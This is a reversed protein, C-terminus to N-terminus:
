PQPEISDGTKAAPKRGPSVSAATKKAAAASKKAATVPKKASAAPKKGPAVKSGSGAKAPTKKAPSASTGKASAAKTANGAPAANKAAASQGKGVTRTTQPSPPKRGRGRGKAKSPIGRRAEILEAAEALSLTELDAGKALNANTEGDTVYFGWKGELVKIMGGSKPDAGLEKLAARPAAQGRRSPPQALLAEAEAWTIAMPSVDKPISRSDTGRKVYPGYRGNYVQIATTEDAGGVGPRVLTRPFKLLNLADVLTITDPTMGALLSARPPRPADNKSAKKAPKKGSPKAAPKAGKKPPKSAETTADPAAEVAAVAEGLQVYAGFRGDMVYVSTGAEDKGLLRPGAAKKDLRELAWALTVEDPAVDEPLDATRDGASLFPGYRGVRVVVDVEGSRGIPISCIVRPDVVNGADVVRAELGDKGHYFKKIITLRDVGGLAVRDLDEEINATLAYDVLEGLYQEMLATVAFGTFTPVLANGKRFVYTRQIITDIITAWTSPRGIGRAELEKVLTADNLRAPPQTTHGKPVLKEFRVTDGVAVPALVREQDALEAEPDDSGEVYARRFGPFDITLGTARFRAPTGAGPISVAVNVDVAVRKGTADVMQSAVTRKWILEYLRADVPDLERRAEEISRFRTGAPRIAEHAEQANKATSAYVRPRNPLYDKGYDTAILGRAATLAQESLVVSDTRMYTIWGNEYLRQASKMADKATWRLKRNAEQQLTSTTFPPKPSERFPKSEVADVRGEQGLIAKALREARTQDLLVPPTGKAILLGTNPDFDAGSAVRVGGMAVLGGTLSGARAAMTATVDWWGSSRFAMRAREREVILRLAPSQVRGASLRPKVKKWLLPSVEYGYLRDIVRRAEQAQVLHEDIARPHALAAQIAEPTIEHFVLRAIPTKSSRTTLEERLHWSIAEGERDEDTALLIRSAARVAARLDAVTRRKEAKVVYIPTFDRAIEIGYKVDARGRFEAPVEEASDPLDRIHGVSAMVTYESGLFREITRAKAPSEVIILPKAVLVEKPLLLAVGRLPLLLRPLSCAAGVEWRTFDSRNRTVLRARGM